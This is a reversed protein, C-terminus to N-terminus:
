SASHLDYSDRVKCKPYDIIYVPRACQGIDVQGQKALVVVLVSFLSKLLIKWVSENRRKLLSSLSSVKYVGVILLGRM